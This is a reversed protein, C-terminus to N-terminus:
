GDVLDAKAHGAEKEKEADEGYPHLAASPAPCGNVVPVDRERNRAGERGGM